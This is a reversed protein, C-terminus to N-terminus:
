KFNFIYTQCNMANLASYKMQFKIIFFLATLLIGSIYIYNQFHKKMKVIVNHAYM